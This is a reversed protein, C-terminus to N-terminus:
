VGFEVDKVLVGYDCVRIGFWGEIEGAMESCVVVLKGETSYDIEGFADLEYGLLSDNDRDIVVAENFKKLILTNTAM